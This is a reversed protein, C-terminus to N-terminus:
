KKAVIYLYPAVLYRLGGAPIKEVFRLRRAPAFVRIDKLKSKRCEDLINKTISVYKPSARAYFLGRLGWVRLTKRLLGGFQFNPIRAIFLGCDKLYDLAFRMMLSPEAVLHLVDVILLVDAISGPLTPDPSVIGAVELGRRKCSEAMVSNFAVVSVKTKSTELGKEFFGDGAGWVLVKGHRNSMLSLIMPDPEERLKKSGFFGPLETEPNCLEYAPLEGKYIRRLADLQWKLEEIPIGMKGVYKGPLHEILYDEVKDICILKELGCQTYPDTAASELMGFKGEHPNITFRGSSIAHKLKEKSLIYFAAHPNSYRAWLFGSREKVSSLIWRFHSHCTSINISGDPGLEKRIFGGVENDKLIKEAELFAQINKWLVLTDDESYVFYDYQTLNELFLERHSFPLSMPNKSPLGVKVSVGDQYPKIKESLITIDIEAPMLKYANILKSLYVINAEGYNAIAILFKM